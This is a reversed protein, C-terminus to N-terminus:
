RFPHASESRRRTPSERIDQGLLDVRFGPSPLKDMLKRISIRRVRASTDTLANRMSKIIKAVGAALAAVGAASQRGKASGQRSGNGFLRKVLDSGVLAVPRRTLRGWAAIGAFEL